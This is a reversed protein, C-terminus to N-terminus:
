KFFGGFITKYPTLFSVSSYVTYIYASVGYAATILFLSIKEFLGTTLLQNAIWVGQLPAALFLIRRRISPNFYFLAFALLMLLTANFTLTALRNLKPDQPSKSILYLVFLFNFAILLYASPTPHYPVNVYAYYKTFFGFGLTKYVFGILVASFDMKFASAAAVLLAACAVLIKSNKNGINYTLLVPLYLLASAHFLMGALVFAVAKWAKGGDIIERCALYAFGVAFSQRVMAFHLFIFCFCIYFFLSFCRNNPVATILRSLAYVNFISAAAVVFINTGGLLKVLYSLAYYGPEFHLGSLDATYGSGLFGHVGNLSICSFYHDYGQWDWGVQWNLGGIVAVVALIVWFMTGSFKFGELKGGFACVLALLFPIFYVTLSLDM